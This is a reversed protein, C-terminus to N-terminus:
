PEYLWIKRIEIDGTATDAAANADRTYKLVLLDNSGCSDGSTVTVTAVGVRGISSPVTITSANVSGFSETDLDASYTTSACMVQVNHVVAGSNTSVMTYYIDARLTTTTYETLITSWSASEDTSADCLLSPITAATSNSIVCPNSGPVKAQEANFVQSFKMARRVDKFILNNSGDSTITQNATGNVSPLIMTIDSSMSNSAKLIAYHAGGDNDRIRIQGPTATGYVTFSSANVYTGNTNDMGVIDTGNTFTAAAFGAGLVQFYSNGVSMAAGNAGAGLSLTLAPDENVAASTVNTSASIIYALGGYSGDNNPIYARQNLYKSDVFDDVFTTNFNLYNTRGNSSPFVNFQGQVTGSSVYFTAGTQLSNTNQIYTTAGSLPAVSVFSLNNAGDTQIVQRATGSSAPLVYTNNAAVVASSKLGVFNTSDNDYAVLSAGNYAGMQVTGLISPGYLIQAFDAFFFNADTTFINAASLYPVRYAAGFNALLNTVLINTGTINTATINSATLNSSTFNTATGSSVYFTANSQLTGTNQIYNTSGSGLKAGPLIGTVENTTDALNIPASTIVQSGNLKLPQNATLDPLALDNLTSINDDTYSWQPPTGVSINYTVDITTDSAGDSWSQSGVYTSPDLQIKAEGVDDIALLGRDFNFTSSNVAFSGQNEVRVTTGSGGGSGGDGQLIWGLTGECAYFQRGSVANTDIYVRGRENDTDCDTPPPTASHPLSMIGNAAIYSQFTGSSVYFTSSPQLDQRIQIFRGSPGTVDAVALKIFGSILFLFLSLFKKM